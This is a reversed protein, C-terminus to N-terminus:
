DHKACRVGSEEWIVSATALGERTGELALHDLRCWFFALGCLHSDHAEGLGMMVLM